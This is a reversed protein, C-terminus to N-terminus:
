QARAADADSVIQYHDFMSRTRRGVQTMAGREPCNAGRWGKDRKLLGWVGTM